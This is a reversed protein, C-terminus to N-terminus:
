PTFKGTHYNKKVANEQTLKKNKLHWQDETVVNEMPVKISQATDTKECIIRKGEVVGILPGTKKSSGWVPSHFTEYGM